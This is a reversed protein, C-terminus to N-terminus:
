DDFPDLSISHESDCINSLSSKQQQPPTSSMTIKSERHNQQSQQSSHNGKNDRTDRADRNHNRNDKPPSASLQQVADINKATNLVSLMTASLDEGEESQNM